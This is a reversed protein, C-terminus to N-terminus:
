ISTSSPYRLTRRTIGSTKSGFRLNGLFSGDGRGGWGGHFWPGMVLRNDTNKSKDEIAKYLSWAGFCDEADFLGGVVLMAPKIDNVFNRPNRAKWWEDYDPHAMLDKWFAISDGMLKSLNKLAGKKLYFDYNDQGPMEYGPTWETTPKPRPKGFGSYFSFADMVFFAGNHHFDDGMFWDTVPAQPSVAKLAPHGSM